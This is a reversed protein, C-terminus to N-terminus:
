LSVHFNGLIGWRYNVIASFNSKQKCGVQKEREDRGKNM